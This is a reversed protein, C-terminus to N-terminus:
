RRGILRILEKSIDKYLVDAIVPHFGPEASTEDKRLACHLTAGKTLCYVLKNCDQPSLRLTLTSYAGTTLMHPNTNQDCALILVSKLLTRTVSLQEGTKDTLDLTVIIDVYNGPKLMGAVGGTRSIPVTIARQNPPFKLRDGGASRAFHSGLLVQGAKIKARTRAGIITSKESERVWTNRLARELIERPFNQVEYDDEQFLQNTGIERAAVLVPIEETQYMMQTKMQDVYAKIGVISLVGLLVAVALALKNTM